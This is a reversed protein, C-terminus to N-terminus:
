FYFGHAKVGHRSFELAPAPLKIMNVFYIVGKLFKSRTRVATLDFDVGLYFQRFPDINQYDRANIMNTAGYGVALNLWTPFPMFKDMDFSLWQTHGNYDKIIEEGLNAGLLDPNQAAFPTRSFSYKPHVRIEKWAIMQGYFLLGGAANAGLDSLSAGYGTSFGDFVEISSVLAFATIASVAAQKEEKSHAWTLAQFTARSLQFTCFFHGLKDMQKWEAADNFFHFSTRPSQSYWVENLGIMGISYTALGGFRIINLRKKSRISDNAFGTLSILFFITFLSRAKSMPDIITMLMVVLM